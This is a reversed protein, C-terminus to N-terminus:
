DKYIQEGGVLRGNEFVQIFCFTHPPICQIDLTYTSKGPALEIEMLKEGLVNLFVLRRNPSLTTFEVTLMHKVPNPYCQISSHAPWQDNNVSAGASVCPSTLYCDQDVIEVAYTGTTGPTFSQNTEGPIPANGNSCDVWQYSANSLNATLTGNAESVMTDLSCPEFFFVSGTNPISDGGMADQDDQNASIVLASDTMGLAFGFSDFTGREFPIIRQVEEWNGMPNPEFLYAAGAFSLANPDNEAVKESEGPAGVLIKTGVLAVKQGFSGDEERDSAVLKQAEVFGNQNPDWEFVFVAGADDLINQRNVDVADGDAGVILIDGQLALAGGFLDGGNWDLSDPTLIHEETWMETAPALLYTYVAGANADNNTAALNNRAFWAGIALRDGDMSIASGFSDGQDRDSATLTQWLMFSGNMDRKFVLVKGADRLGDVDDFAAAILIFDGKIEVASGFNDQLEGFSDTLKQVQQWTGNTQREFVYAAGQGNNGGETKNTAGVVARDGDIAVSFGFRDNAARDNPVLKQVQSWDGSMGREFVYVSGAQALSDGGNVNNDELSAGVIAYAGSMDVAMGFRDGFGRDPATRKFIKHFDQAQTLSLSLTLLLTISLYKM